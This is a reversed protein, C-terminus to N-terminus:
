RRRWSRTRPRSPATTSPSQMPFLQDPPFRCKRRSFKEEAMRLLVELEKVRNEAVSLDLHLRHNEASVQKLEASASKNEQALRATLSEKEERCPM